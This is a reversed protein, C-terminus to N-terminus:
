GRGELQKRKEDPLSSIVSKDTRYRLARDMVTSDSLLKGDRDICLERRRHDHLHRVAFFERGCDDCKIADKLDEESFERLYQLSTLPGDGIVGHLKRVVQGNLLIKGCYKFPFSAVHVVM